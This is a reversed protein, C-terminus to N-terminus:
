VLQNWINRLLSTIIKVPQEWEYSKCSNGCYSCEPTFWYIGSCFIHVNQLPFMDSVRCLTTFSDLILTPLNILKRRRIIIIYREKIHHFKGSLDLFICRRCQRSIHNPKPFYRVQYQNLGKYHGKYMQVLMTLESM